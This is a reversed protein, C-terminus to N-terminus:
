FTRSYRNRCVRSNQSNEMTKPACTPPTVLVELGDDDRNILVCLTGQAITLTEQVPRVRDTAATSAVVDRSPM